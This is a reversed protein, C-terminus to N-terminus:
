ATSRPCDMTPGPPTTGNRSSACCPMSKPDQAGRLNKRRPAEAAKELMAAADAEERKTFTLIAKGIDELRGRLVDARKRSNTEVVVERAKVV